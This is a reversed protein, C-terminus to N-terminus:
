GVNGFAIGKMLSRTSLQNCLKFSFLKCHSVPPVFTFILPRKNLSIPLFIPHPTPFFVCIFVFTSQLKFNAYLILKDESLRVCVPLIIWPSLLEVVRGKQLLLIYKFVVQSTFKDMQDKRCFFIKLRPRSFVPLCRCRIKIFQTM